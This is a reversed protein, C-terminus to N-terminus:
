KEESKRFVYMTAIVIVITLIVAYMFKALLSGGGTFPFVYEILGKIAENWALGVVIGLGGLIYNMTREHVEKKIRESETKLNNFTEM